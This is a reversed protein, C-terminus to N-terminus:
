GRYSRIELFTLVIGTLFMIGSGILMAIIYPSTRPEMEEPEKEGNEEAM